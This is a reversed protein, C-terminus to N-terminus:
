RNRRRSSSPRRSNSIPDKGRGTVASRYGSLLGATAHAPDLRAAQTVPHIDLALDLNGVALPRALIHPRLEVPADRRRDLRQRRPLENGGLPNLRLYGLAHRDSELRVNVRAHPNPMAIRNVVDLADQ